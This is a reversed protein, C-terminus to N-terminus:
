EEAKFLSNIKDLVLAYADYRGYAFVDCGHDDKSGADEMQESIWDCLEAKPILGNTKYTVPIDEESMWAIQSLKYGLRELEPEIEETNYRPLLIDIIDVCGRTYDLIAVKM